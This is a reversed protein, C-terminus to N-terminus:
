VRLLVAQSALPLDGIEDLFLTGGEAARILGLRDELAGSFAGRRYGFLESQVLSEVLGGCNVAVLEGQRGSLAHVGRAALEKGTGSEGRLLVSVDSGAIRALQRYRQEL